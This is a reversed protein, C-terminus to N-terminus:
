AAKRLRFGTIGTEKFLKREINFPVTKADRSPMEPLDRAYFDDPRTGDLTSHPRWENYWISFSQCLDNIHSFGKLIVVCQLWEVKLSKIIRETVAIRGHRGVAGFRQLIGYNAVVEAFAPSQFVSWQDTILHKPPGFRRIADEFAHFVWGANPGEMPQVAVVKRSFHDIAVFIYTPWFGWRLVTTLDASWVHNPYFAPIVRQGPKEDKKKSKTPKPEDPRERRLVRRVTSASIFVGLVALQNTDKRGIRLQM